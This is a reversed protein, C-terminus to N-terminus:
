QMYWEHLRPDNITMPESLTNGCVVHPVIGVRLLNVRTMAVCLPDVDQGYYSVFGGINMWHPVQMAAALLMGGSGCAPDCVRLPRVLVRLRTRVADAAADDLPADRLWILFPDDEACRLVTACRRLVDEARPGEMRALLLSLHFPTFFQGVHTNPSLQMSIAGLIDTEDETDGVGSRALWPQAAQVIATQACDLAPSITEWAKERYRTGVANRHAIWAADAEQHGRYADWLSKEMAFMLDRWLREVREGTTEAAVILAKAIHRSASDRFDSPRISRGM